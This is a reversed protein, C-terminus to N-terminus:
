KAPETSLCALVFRTDFILSSHKPANNPESPNATSFLGAM